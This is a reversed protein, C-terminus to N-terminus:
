IKRWDKSGEAFRSVENLWKICVEKSAYQETTASFLRM